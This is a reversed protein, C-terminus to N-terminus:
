VNDDFFRDITHLLVEETPNEIKIENYDPGKARSIYVVCNMNKEKAHKTFKAYLKSIRMKFIDYGGNLVFTKFAETVFPLFIHISLYHPEALFIHIISDIPIGAGLGSPMVFRANYPALQENIEQFDDCFNDQTGYISFEIMESM